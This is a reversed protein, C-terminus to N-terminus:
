LLCFTRRSVKKNKNVILNVDCEVVAGRSALKGLTRDLKKNVYEQLAPTVEINNGTILIPATTDSMQLKTMSSSVSRPAFTASPTFAYTSSVAALLLASAIPSSYRMITHTALEYNEEEIFNHPRFHLHYPQFIQTM